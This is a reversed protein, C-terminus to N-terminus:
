SYDCVLLGLSQIQRRHTECSEMTYIRTTNISSHGLIDALRVIDKHMKYYVRAFLHRLNHPFVKEPEVKAAACLKKMEAWINSRDVPKGGRTIFVSGARINQRKAYQKLMKCLKKPLLITRIKGKLKIEAQGKAVAEVTIYQLESVRIGTACITQMILCLRQNKLKGAAVLLREYEAKTLDRESKSFVRRQMKVTKIRLEPLNLFGLFNNVASIAANVGAPSHNDVLYQKYSLLSGKSIERGGLWALLREAENLYKTITARAKEQEHLFRGYDDLFNLIVDGEKSLNLAM